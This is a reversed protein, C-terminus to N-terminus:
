KIFDTVCNRVDRLRGHFFHGTGSIEFYKPSNKREIKCWRIVEDKDIVEDEDGQIVLWPANPIPIKDLNYMGVPPTILILKSITKHNNPHRTTNALLAVYAGFSFGGLIIKREPYNKRTWNIVQQLDCAEGVGDNFKGSSKGVGRFNFRVAAIGLDNVSSVMTHVVKNTM